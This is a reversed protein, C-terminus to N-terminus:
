RRLGSPILTSSPMRSTSVPPTDAAVEVSIPYHDSGLHDGVQFNWARVQASAVCHDIQILLPPFYTPWTPTLGAGPVCPRLGGDRLTRRFHASFPTTNLDGIVVLPRPYNRALRALAALQTNRIHAARRSVPWNLHTGLVAVEANAHQFTLLYSPVGHNGLDVTEAHRPEVRSMMAIGTVDNGANIWQYPYSTSLRRVASMWDPTVELLVLVDPQERQVCALMRDYDRNFGFINFSLVRLPRQAPHPAVETPGLFLPVIPVLNLAALAVAGLAWRIRRTLLFTLALLAAAVVYQVRFHCFLDFFWWLGGAFGLVTAGTLVGLVIRALNAVRHSATSNRLVM